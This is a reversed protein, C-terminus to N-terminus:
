ITTFSNLISFLLHASITINYPNICSPGSEKEFDLFLLLGPINKAATYKVISDAILHINEGTFTDKLFALKIM